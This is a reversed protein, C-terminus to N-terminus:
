GPATLVTSTLILLGYQSRCQLRRPRRSLSLEEFVRITQSRRRQFELSDDACPWAMAGGSRSTQTYEGAMHMQITPKHARGPLVGWGASYTTTTDFQIRPDHVLALASLLEIPPERTATLTSWAQSRACDLMLRPRGSRLFIIQAPKLASYGRHKAQASRRWISLGLGNCRRVM